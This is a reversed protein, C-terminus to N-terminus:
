YDIKRLTSSFNAALEFFIELRNNELAIKLELLKEIYSQLAGAVNTRNTLLISSWVDIPSLALRTMDLLGSGFVQQVEPQTQAALFAALATSILQPLHSTLAVTADHQEATMEVTNAGVAQLVDRFEQPVPTTGPTLVYTRNRFLDADASEAGRKEKGAMPHGGVFGAFQLHREAMQVIATKTSGADTILTGPRAMPGLWGLTELIRDVPQALYIFDTQEAAEKLTASGSIAGAALGAEIARPSSVGLIEGSFGAKRLALGFSAGILGVGVIAVSRM